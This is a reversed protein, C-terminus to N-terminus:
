EPNLPLLFIHYIKSWFNHDGGGWREMQPVYWGFSDSKQRQGKHIVGIKTETQHNHNVQFTHHVAVKRCCSYKTCLKQRRRHRVYIFFFSKPSCCMIGFEILLLAAGFTHQVCKRSFLRVYPSISRSNSQQYEGSNWRNTEKQTRIPFTEIRWSMKRVKNSTRAKNWELLLATTWRTYENNM